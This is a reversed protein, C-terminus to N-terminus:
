PHMVKGKATGIVTPLWRSERSDMLLFIVDHTDILAELQAVDAKTQEISATPIPHGPM